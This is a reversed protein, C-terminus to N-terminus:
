ITPLNGVWALALFTRKRCDTRPGWLLDWGHCGERGNGNKMVDIRLRDIINHLSCHIVRCSSYTVLFLNLVIDSFSVYGKTFEKFGKDPVDFRRRTCPPFKKKSTSPKLSSTRPSKAMNVVCYFM